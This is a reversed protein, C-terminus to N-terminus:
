KMSNYPCCSGRQKNENAITSPEYCSLCSAQVYMNSYRLSEITLNPMEVLSSNNLTFVSIKELDNDNSDQWIIKHNLFIINM